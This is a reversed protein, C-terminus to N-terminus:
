RRRLVDGHGDALREVDGGGAAGPGTSTSMGLSMTSGVLGRLAMSHTHGVSSSTEAAERAVLGGGGAVGALDLFRGRHHQGGLARDDVGAAADELGAAGLRELLQGLQQAEGDDGREHGPAREGVVVLQAEAHRAHVAVVRRDHRHLLAVQQDREPLRKSSRTVPLTGFKAGCALIMWTSM